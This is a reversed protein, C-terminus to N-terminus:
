NSRCRKTQTKERDGDDYAVGITEGDDGMAFIKGPYWEDGGKWQCEVRSGVTWDYARVQAVPVVTVDGDDFVVRVVGDGAGQVVGPFWANSGPIRALVWEDREFTVALASTALSAAALGILATRKM